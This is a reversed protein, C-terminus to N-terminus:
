DIGPGIVEDPISGVDMRRTASRGKLLVLLLLLHKNSNLANLVAERRNQDYPGHVCFQSMCLRGFRRQSSM